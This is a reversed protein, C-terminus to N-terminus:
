LEFRSVQNASPILAVIHCTAKKAIPEWQDESGNNLGNNRNGASAQLFHPEEHQGLRTKGGFIFFRPAITGPCIDSTNSRKRKAAKVVVVAAM